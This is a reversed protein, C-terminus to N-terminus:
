DKRHPPKIEVGNTLRGAYLTCKAGTRYNERLLTVIDNGSRADHHVFLRLKEGEDAVLVCAEIRSFRSAWARKLAKFRGGQGLIAATYRKKM